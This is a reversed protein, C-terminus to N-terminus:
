IARGVVGSSLFRQRRRGINRAEALAARRLEILEPAAAQEGFFQWPGQVRRWAAEHRSDLALWAEFAESSEVNNETLHKRWAAAEVLCRADIEKHTVSKM